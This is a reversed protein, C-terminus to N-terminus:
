KEKRKADLAVERAIGVAVKLKFFNDKDVGKSGEPVLHKIISDLTEAPPTFKYENKAFAIIEKRSLKGDKDTDAKKFSTQTAEYKTKAEMKKTRLKKQQACKSIAQSNAKKVESVRAVLKSLDAACTPGM